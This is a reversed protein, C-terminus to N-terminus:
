DNSIIHIVIQTHLKVSIELEARISYSFLLSPQIPNNIFTASQQRFCRVFVTQAQAHTHTQTTDQTQRDSLRMVLAHRRGVIGAKTKRHHRQIVSCLQDSGVSGLTARDAVGDVTRSLQEYDDIWRKLILLQTDNIVPSLTDM